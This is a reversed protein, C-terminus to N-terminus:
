GSRSLLERLTTVHAERDAASPHRGPGDGCETSAEIRGTNRDVSLAEVEHRSTRFDDDPVATVLLARGTAAHAELRRYPSFPDGAWDGTEELVVWGVSTSRAATLLDLRRAAAQEVVVERHRLALAARGVLDQDISDAASGEAALGDAAQAEGVVTTITAAADLLARTSPGRLRLRSVTAAVLAIASQYIDPRSLLGTFLQEEAKRWSAATAEPVAPGGGARASEEPRFM